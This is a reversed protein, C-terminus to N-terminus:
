RDYGKTGHKQYRAKTQTQALDQLALGSLCDWSLIWRDDFKGVYNSSLVPDVKPCTLNRPTVLWSYSLTKGRYCVGVGASPTWSILIVAGMEPRPYKAMALTSRVCRPDLSNTVKGITDQGLSILLLM